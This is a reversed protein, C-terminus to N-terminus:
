ILAQDLDKTLRCFLELKLRYGANHDYGPTSPIPPTAARLTKSNRGVNQLAGLIKPNSWPKPTAGLIKSNSGPNQVLNHFNM